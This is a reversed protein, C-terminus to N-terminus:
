NIWEVNVVTKVSVQKTYILTFYDMRCSSCHQCESTKTQLNLFNIWKVNVVNRVSVQTQLNPFLFNIWEVNVVISVSM